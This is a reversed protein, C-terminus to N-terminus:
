FNCSLFQKLFLYIEDRLQLVANQFINLGYDSLRENDKSGKFALEVFHDFVSVCNMLLLPCITQTHKVM